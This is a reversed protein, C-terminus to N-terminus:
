WRVGVVSYPPITIKGSGIFERKTVLAHGYSNRASRDPGTVVAIRLRGRIPLGDILISLSEADAGKNTAVLSNACTSEGFAQAYVAPITTPVTDAALPPGLPRYTNRAVALVTSGGQVTTRCAVRASNVVATALAYAEAQASFYFGFDLNRTDVTVGRNFADVVTAIHDNAMDVGAPGILQHMGVHEVQSLQTLRLAYEAAWIGGYLTGYMNRVGPQPIGTESSPMGPDVETIIVPMTGFRPVIEQQVYDTTRMALEANLAPIMEDPNSSRQLPYQHYTLIDWYRPQYAALANDWASDPFSANSLFLSIRAEADAAVIADAFPRMKAAYDTADAFFPRLHGLSAENALQWVLVNIGHRKAYAAFLGASEPTDTFANVCVILGKVGIRRAFAAADDLSEGGKGNLIPLAAMLFPYLGLQTAISDNPVIFRDVWEQRMRGTQWDFADSKAGAPYRVWGPRLKAAAVTLNADTYEIGAAMLALNYGAFGPHV